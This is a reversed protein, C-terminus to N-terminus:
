SNAFPSRKLAYQLAEDPVSFSSLVQNGLFGIEQMGVPSTYYADLMMNRAWAFFRVGARLEPTDNKKYAILDLLATQDAPKALLWDSAYRHRSELDMWALGGTYIQEMKPNRSSLFDIFEAAGAQTAGPVVMEALQRLTAYEHANLCKPSYAAGQDLSKVDAVAEHVHQALAPTLVGTATFAILLDRRTPNDFM